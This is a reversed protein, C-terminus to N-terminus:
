YSAYFTGRTCCPEDDSCLLLVRRLIRNWEVGVFVWKNINVDLVAAAICINIMFAYKYKMRIMGWLRQRLLTQWQYPFNDCKWGRKLANEFYLEGKAHGVPQRDTGTVRLRLWHCTFPNNSCIQRGELKGAALEIEEGKVRQIEILPTTKTHKSHDVNYYYYYYYGGNRPPALTHMTVPQTHKTGVSIVTILNLLLGRCGVCCLMLRTSWM